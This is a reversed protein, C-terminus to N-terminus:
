KFYLLKQSQLREAFFIFFQFYGVLVLQNRYYQFLFSIHLLSYHFYHHFSLYTSFTPLYDTTPIICSYWTLSLLIIFFWFYFMPILYLFLLSTIEVPLTWLQHHHRDINSHLLESNPLVHLHILVGLCNGIGSIRM